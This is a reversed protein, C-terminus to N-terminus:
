RYFFQQRKGEIFYLISLMSLGTTHARFVNEEKERWGYEKTFNNEVLDIWEKKILDGYGAWYLLVIREAYLDSFLLDKEEAQVISTAVEKILENLKSESLCNNEKLILLGFLYHTDGYGGNKDNLFKLTLLDANDYGTIDCYFAKILIDNWGKVETTEGNILYFHSGLDKGIGANINKKQIQINALPQDKNLWRKFPDSRFSDGHTQFAKEDIKIKRKSIERLFFYEDLRLNSIKERTYLLSAEKLVQSYSQKKYLYFLLSRNKYSLLYTTEIIALFSFIIIFFIVIHKKKKM